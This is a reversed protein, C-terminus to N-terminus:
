HASVQSTNLMDVNSIVDVNVVDVPGDFISGTGLDHREPFDQLNTEMKVRSKSHFSGSNNSGSKIRDSQVFSRINPSNSVKGEIAEYRPQNIFSACINVEDIDIENAM